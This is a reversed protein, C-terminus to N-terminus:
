LQQDGKPYRFDPGPAPISGVTPDRSRPSTRISPGLRLRNFDKAFLEFPHAREAYFGPAKVYATILRPLDDFAKEREDAPLAHITDVLEAAEREAFRERAWPLQKHAPGWLRGFLQLIGYATCPRKPDDAPLPPPAIPDCEPAPPPNEDGTRAGAGSGAGSGPKPPAVLTTTIGRQLGESPPEGPKRLGELGELNFDVWYRKLFNQAFPHRIFPQLERVIGFRQKDGSKLTESIQHKAMEPIYVIEQPRDYHAVDMRSLTELAGVVETEALGTEHVIIVLPLYFLGVMNAGPATMLYLAVVQVNPKGRLERGSTGTWFRPCVKGYSRM